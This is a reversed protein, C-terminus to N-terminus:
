LLRLGDVKRFVELSRVTMMHLFASHEVQRIDDIRWELSWSWAVALRGMSLAVQHPQPLWTGM